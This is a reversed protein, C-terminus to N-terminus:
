KQFWYPVKNRWQTLWPLAFWSNGNLQMLTQVVLKFLQNLGSAFGLGASDMTANPPMYFGTTSSFIGTQGGHSAIEGM